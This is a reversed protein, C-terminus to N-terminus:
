VQGEQSVEYIKKKTTKSLAKWKDVALERYKARDRWLYDVHKYTADMKRHSWFLEDPTEIVYVTENAKNEM